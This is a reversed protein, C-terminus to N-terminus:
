VSYITPLTLHTYSVSEKRHVPEFDGYLAPLKGNYEPFLDLPMLDIFRAGNKSLSSKPDGNNVMGQFWCSSINAERHSLIKDKGAQAITQSSMEAATAVNELLTYLKDSSWGQSEYEVSCSIVESLGPLFEDFCEATAGKPIKKIMRYLAGELRALKQSRINEQPSFKGLDRLTMEEFFPDRKLVNAASKVSESIDQQTVSKEQYTKSPLGDGGHILIVILSRLSEYRQFNIPKGDSEQYRGFSNLANLVKNWFGAELNKMRAKFRSHTPSSDPRRYLPAAKGNHQNVSHASHRLDIM